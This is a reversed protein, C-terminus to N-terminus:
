DTSLFAVCFQGASDQWHRELHLGGSEAISQIGELTFKYSHETRIADGEHFELAAEGLTIRQPSSAVLDMEIRRQVDNYRAEHRWADPDFDSGLQANVVRLMNRNFDATVGASDDYARQLTRSDKHLDVGLLIGGNGGITQSLRQIFATQADPEFNGLTSGPYFIIRRGGPLLNGFTWPQTFDAAVAHVQLAPWDRAIQTAAELLFAGAIDIPVYAGPQTHQLLHRVKECNGSGPEILTDGPTIVAAIERAHQNFIEAEARTLYYEPLRTIAEFLESGRSDYFYKPSIRPPTEALTALLARREDIVTQGTDTFELNGPSTTSTAHQRSSTM